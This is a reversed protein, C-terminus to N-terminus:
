NIFYDTMFFHNGDKISIMLMLILLCYYCFVIIAASTKKTEILKIILDNCLIGVNAERDFSVHTNHTNHLEDSDVKSRVMLKYLYLNDIITLSIEVITKLYM